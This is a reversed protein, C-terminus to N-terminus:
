NIPLILKAQNNKEIHRVWMDRFAAELAGTFGREDSLSSSMLRARMGIRLEALKELDNGLDVAIKVYETKSFAALESLGLNKLLAYGVRSAFSDGVLSVLPLGLWFTECSTTGGNFPFTDLVIDAHLLIRRFTDLPSTKHFDLRDRAIGKDLFKDEIIKQALDSPIGMLILRSLPSQHLIEAWLEINVDSIKAINNACAFTIYGNSIAPLTSVDPLNAAPRFSWWLYSEMKYLTESYFRDSEFPNADVNTLRYDMSSLGTTNIYGLYSVQVPAPKRAFLLLRHNGTHGNLDVLIDIVDNRIRTDLEQDSINECFVFHDVLSIINETIPDRINGNYYCFVEVKKRDHNELIPLMFLAVSHAFFDSSVYGIKLQRDPDINNLHPLISKKLPAEFRESFQCHEHIMNAPTAWTGYQLSFLMASHTHPLSPNISLAARYSDVSKVINGLDRHLRGLADFAEFFLPNVTTAKSFAIIADESQGTSEAIKGLFYYPDSLSPNLSAARELHMKAEAFLGQEILVFGLNIHAGILLPDIALALRYYQSAAGWSNTDWCQDGLKKLADSKQIRDSRQMSENSEIVQSNVSPDDGRFKKLLKKLIFM